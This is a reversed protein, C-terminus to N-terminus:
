PKTAHAADSRHRHACDIRVTKRLRLSRTIVSRPILAAVDPSSGASLEPLPIGFGATGAGSGPQTPRRRHIHARRNAQRSPGGDASVSRGSNPPSKLPERTGIRYPRQKIFTWTSGDAGNSKKDTSPSGQRRCRQCEARRGRTGRRAGMAGGDASAGSVRRRSIGSAAAAPSRYRHIVPRPTRSARGSSPARLLVCLGRRQVSSSGSCAVNPRM